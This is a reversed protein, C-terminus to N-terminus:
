APKFVEFVAVACREGAQVSPNPHPQSADESFTSAPFSTSTPAIMVAPGICEKGLMPQIAQCRGICLSTLGRQPLVVLQLATHPFDAQVTRLPSPDFGM